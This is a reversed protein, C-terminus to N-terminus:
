AEPELLDLAHKIEEFKYHKLLKKLKATLGDERLYAMMEKGIGRKEWDRMVKATECENDIHNELLKQCEGEEASRIKKGCLSCKVEYLTVTGKKLDIDM